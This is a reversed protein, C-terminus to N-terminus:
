PSAHDPAAIAEQMADAAQVFRHWRSRASARANADLRPEIRSTIGAALVISESAIVGAGLGALAAAGQATTEAVSAVALPIGLLDAQRQMLYGNGTLGGDVCLTQPPLPLYQAMAEVVDCVRHAIGDLASRALHAPTAAPTLGAIVGRVESRWWPAGLGALAPLILVGGDDPVSRVQAEMEEASAVIGLGDRLWNVLTGASFVGGDLAYAVSRDPLSWAVTALMSGDMDPVQDGANALVFV